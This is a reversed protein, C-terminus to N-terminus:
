KIVTAKRTEVSLGVGLRYFYTGSSVASADWQIQFRGAPQRSNVLTAIPQGLANFVALNIQEPRSLQYTITTFSNFPNPFNQNLIFKEPLPAVAPKLDSLHTQYRTLAELFYYDAYITGREPDGKAQCARRLISQYSTGKALYDVSALSTLIKQATELYKPDSSYQALEFLATSAIAAASADKAVAPIRPDEFDYYPVQDAPLHNIFYDALLLATNLFSDNQTFRYTMTFGYLGWAQGRSWTSEDSYGQHTTKSIVAGNDNFDVVHYTSGDARVHEQRTRRAHSVACDFLTSSGGNEAAWFLLELNMMNDIIVPYNWNGWSWSRICGIRTNFRRALSRAATLIIERYDERGTLRYGNGFSSMIRFGVDHDGTNNKQSELDATWAQACDLWFPANTQQYLYWLCGAFFGSVWHGRGATQWNGNTDTIQLHRTTDNNNFIWKEFQHSAFQFSSEVLSDLSQASVSHSIGLLIIFCFCYVRNQM